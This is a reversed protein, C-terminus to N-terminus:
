GFDKATMNREMMEVIEKSLASLPSAINKVQLRGNLVKDPTEYCCTLNDIDLVIQQPHGVPKL